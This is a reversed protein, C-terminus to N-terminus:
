TGGRTPTSSRSVSPCAAIVEAAYGDVRLYAQVLAVANDM